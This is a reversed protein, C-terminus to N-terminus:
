SDESPITRKFDELLWRATGLAGKVTSDRNSSIERRGFRVIDIETRRETDPDKRIMRHVVLPDGDMYTVFWYSGDARTTASGFHSPKIDPAQEIATRWERTIQRTTQRVARQPFFQDVLREFKNM